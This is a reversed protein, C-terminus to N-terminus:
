WVGTVRGTVLTWFVVGVAIVAYYLGTLLVM